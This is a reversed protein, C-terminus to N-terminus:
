ATDCGLALIVNSRCETLNEQLDHVKGVKRLWATRRAKPGQPVDKILEYQIVQLIELLCVQANKVATSVSDSTQRLDHTQLSVDKLVSAVTEVEVQLEELEKPADYLKKAIRAGKRITDFITLGSAVPDM